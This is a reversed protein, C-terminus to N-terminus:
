TLHLLDKNNWFDELMYPHELTGASTNVFVYAELNSEDVMGDLFSNVSGYRQAPPQLTWGGPGFLYSSPLREHLVWARWLFFDVVSLQHPIMRRRRFRYINDFIKFQQGDRVRRTIGNFRVYFMPKTEERAAQTTSASEALMQRNKFYPRGDIVKTPVNLPYLRFCTDSDGCAEEGSNDSTSEGFFLARQAPPPRRSQKKEPRVMNKKNQRPTRERPTQWVDQNKKRM